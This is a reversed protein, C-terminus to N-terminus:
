SPVFIYQYNYGGNKLIIDMEYSKSDYNYKMKNKEDLLNNNFYGAVYLCGDIWPEEKDFTFKVVSYDIERESWVDQAHVIFRGDVDFDSKYREASNDRGPNVYVNYYPRDFKIVDINGNYNRIHSFDIRYFENGAEFILAKNNSFHLTSGDVYTPKPYRVESDKRGNQRVIIKIQDNPSTVNLDGCDISFNLMQYKSNVGYETNYSVEPNVNVADEEVYFKATAVVKNEEDKDKIEIIYNGSLLLSLNDNPISFSYNTYNFTTNLSHYFDEIENNQYGKLYDIESINTSKNWDCDCHYIDYSYSHVDHSMEDFSITLKDDSGLTIIPDSLYDNSNNIVLTRVNDVYIKNGFESAYLHTTLIGFFFVNLLYRM